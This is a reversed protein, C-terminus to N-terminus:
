GGAPSKALLNTEPDVESQSQSRRSPQCSEDGYLKEQDAPNIDRKGTPRSSLLATVAPQGSPQVRVASYAGAVGVLFILAASAGKIILSNDIEM